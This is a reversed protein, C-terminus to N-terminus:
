KTQKMEWVFEYLAQAVQANLHVNLNGYISLLAWYNGLSPLQKRQGNELNQFM